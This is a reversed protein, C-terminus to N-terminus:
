RAFFGTAPKVRYSTHRKYEEILDRIESWIQYGTLPFCICATVVRGFPGYNGFGLVERSWVAMLCVCNFTQIVKNSVKERLKKGEEDDAYWAYM